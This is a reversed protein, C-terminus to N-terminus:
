LKRVIGVIYTGLFSLPQKVKIIKAGAQFLEKKMMRKTYFEHKHWIGKLGMSLLWFIFSYLSNKAPVFIIIRGGRKAVRIMEKIPKISDFHEIVGANFVIDFSNDPFPMEFLDGLCLWYKEKDIEAQKFNNHALRMAKESNDLGVVKKAKKAIHVLSECSGSGPELVLKNKYDKLQNAIKKAFYYKRGFNFIKKSINSNGTEWYSDWESKEKNM